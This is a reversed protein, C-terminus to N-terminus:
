SFEAIDDSIRKACAMVMPALQQRVEQAQWRPYTVAINVAAIPTRDNKLIPASISIDGIFAEQNNMAYGASRVQELIGLLTPIETVTTATMAKRPYDNLIRLAEEPPLFALIARGAATCFAPLRSGTHLNVSVPHRGPFRSVYIIEHGELKMLNTTENCKQNLRDLHPQAIERVPDTTLVTQGFELMRSSLVYAKSLPHQAIYGLTKLTYTFRQVTSKDMGSMETLQTLTLPKRANNLCELVEFCKGVSAVFLVDRKVESSVAPQRDKDKEASAPSEKITM